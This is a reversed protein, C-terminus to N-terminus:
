SVPSNLMYICVFNPEMCVSVGIWGRHMSM